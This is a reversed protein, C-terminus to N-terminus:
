LAFQLIQYYTKGSLSEISLHINGLFDCEMDVYFKGFCMDDIQIENEEMISDSIVLARQEEKKNRLCKIPFLGGKETNIWIQYRNSFSLDGSFTSMIYSYDSNSTPKLKTDRLYEFGYIRPKLEDYFRLSGFPSFNFYGKEGVVIQQYLNDGMVLECFDGMSLIAELHDIYDNINSIFSIDIDKPIPLRDIVKRTRKITDIKSITCKGFGGDFVTRVAHHDYYEMMNKNNAISNIPIVQTSGGLFDQLKHVFCPVFYFHTSVFLECTEKESILFTKIAEFISEYECFQRYDKEEFM